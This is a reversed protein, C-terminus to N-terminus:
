IEFQKKLEQELNDIAETLTYGSGWIDLGNIYTRAVWGIRNDDTKLVFFRVSDM